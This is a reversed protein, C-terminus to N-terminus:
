EYIKSYITETLETLFSDSLEGFNAVIENRIVKSRPFFKEEEAAPVGEALFAIADLSEGTYKNDFYSYIRETLDDEDKSLASIAKSAKFSMIGIIIFALFMLGMVVYFITNINPALNVPIVKLYSLALFAFGFIGVILLAFASSKYNEARVSAKVFPEASEVKDVTKAIEPVTEELTIESENEAIVELNNDEESPLEDVLAVNCDACMTYGEKYEYKCKPCWPM